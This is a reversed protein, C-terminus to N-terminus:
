SNSYRTREPSPEDESPDSKTPSQPVIDSIKFQSTDLISGSKHRLHDINEKDVELQDVEVSPRIDEEMDAEIDAEDAEMNPEVDAAIDPEVDASPSEVVEPKNRDM